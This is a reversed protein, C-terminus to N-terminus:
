TAYDYRRILGQLRKPDMPLLPYIPIFDGGRYQTNHLYDNIAGRRELATKESHARVSLYQLNTEDFFRLPMGKHPIIHDIDTAVVPRGQLAGSACLIVEEKFRKKLMSWRHTKYLPETTRAQKNHTDCYSATTPTTCGFHRCNSVDHLPCPYTERCRPTKCESM